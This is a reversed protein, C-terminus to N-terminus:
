LKQKEKLQEVLQSNLMQIENHLKIIVLDPDAIERYKIVIGAVEDYEPKLQEM